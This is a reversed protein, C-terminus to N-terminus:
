SGFEHVTSFEAGNNGKAFSSPEVDMAVPANAAAGGSPSKSRASDDRSITMSYTM